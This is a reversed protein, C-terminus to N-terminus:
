PVVDLQALLGARSPVRVTRGEVGIAGQEALTRLIRSLTEPKISLYSALEQRSEALQFEMPGDGTAPLRGALLRVLRHTASELTLGEIEHIRVHLRKSLHGLMRLCTDPSERLIALYERNSFRAVRSDVAAVASLQYTAREMFMVAEAFIQGSGLMDVIKEDGSKSYLALHVQGDVVIYFHQASQGREYITQGAAVEEIRSTALLRHLQSHSLAFIPHARMVALARVDFTSSGVTSSPNPGSARPAPEGASRCRSTPFVVPATAALGRTANTLM